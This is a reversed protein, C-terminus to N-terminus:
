NLYKEIAARDKMFLMLLHHRYAYAGTKEHGDGEFFLEQPLSEVKMRELLADLSSNDEQYFKKAWQKYMEAGKRERLVTAAGRLNPGIATGDDFVVYDVKLTVEKIERQDPGPKLPKTPSTRDKGPHLSTIKVFDRIDPHIFKDGSVYTTSKVETGTDTIATTTVAVGYAEVAKATKNTVKFHLTGDSNDESTSEDSIELPVVGDVPELQETKIIPNQGTVTALGDIRNSRSAVVDSALIWACSLAALLSGVVKVQASWGIKNEHECESHVSKLLGASRGCYKCTGM